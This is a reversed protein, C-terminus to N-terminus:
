TNDNPECGDALATLAARSYEAAQERTLIRSWPGDPGDFSVLLDKVWVRCQAPPGPVYGGSAYRQGSM